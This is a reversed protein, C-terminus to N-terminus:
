EGDTQLATLKRQLQALGQKPTTQLTALEDAVQTAANQTESYGYFATDPKGYPLSKVTAQAAPNKALYNRYDQSRLAKTTLPLYGTAKAWKLTQKEALLFKMLAAAGRRQAPSASNFMVLENGQVAYVRPNGRFSPMKAASWHLGKPTNTQMIGIAASTGTYFLTKGKLFRVNGFGDTGATAATQHKIMQYIVDTAALMQPSSLRPHKAVLPTGAQCALASWQPRFTQDLALGTYGHAHAKAADRVLDHWTRPVTLHLQRLLDQNYFLLGISKSFPMAYTKGQYQSVQRLTPDIRNLTRKSIYGNLPVIFKGHLYDPVNTYTTQALTPLTQSKAAATIKQQVNAFNGQGSAVVRYQTQSHNFDRIMANLTQQSTGTMGHWFTVTTRKAPTPTATQRGCAGLVGLLSLTAMLLLYRSFKKM